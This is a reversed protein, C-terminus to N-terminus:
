RGSVQGDRAAVRVPSFLPRRESENGALVTLYTGAELDAIKIAAHEYHAFGGRALSSEARQGLTPLAEYLALREGCLGIPEAPGRERAKGRTAPWPLRAEDLIVAEDELQLLAFGDDQRALYARGDPSFPGFGRLRLGHSALTAADFLEGGSDGTLAFASGDPRWDCRVVRGVQHAVARRVGRVLDICWVESPPGPQGDGAAVPEHAAILLGGAPALRLVKPFGALAGLERETRSRTDVGRLRWREKAHAKEQDLAYRVYSGLTVGADVDFAYVILGQGDLGAISIPDQELPVRCERLSPLDILRLTRGLSGSGVPPVILTGTAAGALEAAEPGPARELTSQCAALLTLLLM